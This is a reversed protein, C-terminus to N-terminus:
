FIWKKCLKCRTFIEVERHECIDTCKDKDGQMEKINDKLQNLTCENAMTLLEKKEDDTKDHLYPLLLTVKSIEVPTNELLNGLETYIQILRLAQAISIHLSNEVWYKFTPMHEIEKRWLKEKKFYYLSKGMMIYGTRSLKIGEQWWGMIEWFRNGIVELEKKKM